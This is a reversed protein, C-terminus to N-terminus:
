RIELAGIDQNKRNKKETYM